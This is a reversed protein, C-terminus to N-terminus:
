PQREQLPMRVEQRQWEGNAALVLEDLMLHEPSIASVRGFNAGVHSGVRVRHVEAFKAGSTASVSDHVRILAQLDAGASIHGVYHLHERAFRELPEQTRMLEPVVQAAYSPHSQAHQHKTQGWRKADFPDGTTDRPPSAMLSAGKLPSADMRQAVMVQMQVALAHQPSSTLTLSSLTVGPAAVPWRELWKLWDAWSGQLEFRIPLLQIRLPQLHPNASQMEQGSRLFQLDSPPALAILAQADIVPLELPTMSQQLRATDSHLSAIMEQQRLVKSELVLLADWRHWYAFGIPSVLLMGLGCALASMAVQHAKSALWPQHGNMM